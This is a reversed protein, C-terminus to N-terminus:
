GQPCVIPSWYNNIENSLKEIEFHSCFYHLTKNSEGQIESLFLTNIKIEGKLCNLGKKSDNNYKNHSANYLYSTGITKFLDIQAFHM